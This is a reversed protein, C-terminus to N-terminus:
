PTCGGPSEVVIDVHEMINRTLWRDTELRIRDFGKASFGDQEDRSVPLGYEDLLRAAAAIIHRSTSVNATHSSYIDAVLLFHQRIKFVRLIIQAFHSHLCIM